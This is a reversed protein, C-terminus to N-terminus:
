RLGGSSIAVVAVVVWMAAAVAFMAEFGNALTAVGSMALIFTAADLSAHMLMAVLLSGTRDYVWVMLIRFAPLQGVNNRYPVCQASGRRCLLAEDARSGSPRCGSRSRTVMASM